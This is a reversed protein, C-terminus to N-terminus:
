RRWSRGASRRARGRQRRRRRVVREPEADEGGDRQQAPHQSREGQGNKAPSPITPYARARRAPSSREFHRSPSVRLTSPYRPRSAASATAPRTHASDDPETHTGHSAQHHALHGVHLARAGLRSPVGGGPLVWSRHRLWGVLRRRVVRPLRGPRLRWRRWRRGTLVGAVPRRVVPWRRPLVRVAAVRGAVVLGDVRTPHGRGDLHDQADHDADERPEEQPDERRDHEGSPTDSVPVSNRNKAATAGSTTGAGRSIQCAVRGQATPRSIPVAIEDM